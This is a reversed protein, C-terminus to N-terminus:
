LQKDFYSGIVSRPSEKQQELNVLLRKKEKEFEEKNFVPELLVEKIIGIVKDQDKAAFKSSIGAFEKSSYTNITAGIFDLEEDLKEKSFNKTGHKLATATLSALGADDGDYIAGAPIIGSVSIVPVEHQEMLYVTLGDPLTFKTYAPLRYGQASLNVATVLLLCFISLTQKILKM